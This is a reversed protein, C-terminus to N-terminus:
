CMSFIHSKCLRRYKLESNLSCKTIKRTIVPLKELLRFTLEKVRTRVTDISDKKHFSFVVRFIHLSHSLSTRM